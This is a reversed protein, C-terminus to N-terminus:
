AKPVDATYHRVCMCTYSLPASCAINTCLVAYVGYERTHVIPRPLSFNVCEIKEVRVASGRGRM